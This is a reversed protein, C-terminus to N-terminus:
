IVEEEDFSSEFSDEESSDSPESAGSTGSTGSSESSKAERPFSEKAPINGAPAQSSAGAADAKGTGKGVISLNGFKGTSLQMEGQWESVWGNGIKVIDGVNVQDAQENWLTLTIEGTDDRIKANCVKGKKGFKDFERPEAKSIVEATLEVKGQRPQLDKITM